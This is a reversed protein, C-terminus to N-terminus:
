LNLALIIMSGAVEGLYHLAHITGYKTLSLISVSSFQKTVAHLYKPVQQFLLIPQGMMATRLGSLVLTQMQSSNLCVMFGTEVKSM